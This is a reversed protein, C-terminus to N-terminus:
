PQSDVKRVSLPSGDEILQLGIFESVGHRAQRPACFSNRVGRAEALEEARSLAIDKHPIGWFEADDWLEAKLQDLRWRIFEIAPASRGGRELQRAILVEPNEVHKGDIIM